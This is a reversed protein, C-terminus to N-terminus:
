PYFTSSSFEIAGLSHALERVSAINVGPREIATCEVGLGAESYM